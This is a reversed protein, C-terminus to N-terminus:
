NGSVLYGAPFWREFKRVAFSTTYLCSLSQECERKFRANRLRQEVPASRFSTESCDAKRSDNDSTPCDNQCAFCWVFTRSVVFDTIDAVFEVDAVRAAPSSLLVCTMLQWTIHIVHRRTDDKQSPELERISALSPENSDTDLVREILGGKNNSHGTGKFYDLKELLCHRHVWIVEICLSEFLVWRM